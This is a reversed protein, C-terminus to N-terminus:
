KFCIWNKFKRNKNRKLGFCLVYTSLVFWYDFDFAFNYMAHGSNSSTKYLIAM